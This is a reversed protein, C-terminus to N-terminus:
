PKPPRQGKQIKKMMENINGMGGVGMVEQVSNVKRYYGPVAFMSATAAGIRIDKFNM